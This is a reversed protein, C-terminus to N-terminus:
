PNRRKIAAFISVIIGLVMAIIFYRSILIGENLTISFSGGLPPQDSSVFIQLYYEGSEKLKFTKNLRSSSETWTGESDRGTYYYFTKQFADTAISDKDLIYAVAYVESNNPLSSEIRFRYLKNADISIPGITPSASESFMSQELALEEQFITSGSSFFSVMLMAFMGLAFLISTNSVSRWRSEYEKLKAIEENDGFAEILDKRRYRTEKFFEVEKVEDGEESLRWEAIYNTGMKKFSAFQITDDLKIEYNSEGEFFLVRANGFEQVVAPTQKKYFSMRLNEPLLTPTEPIIEESKWYGQRDEVIYFYTRQPSIMLWEDYVWVEDSYGSSGDEQWFEKYDMRWRTRAIVQYQTGELEVLQGLKIFSFPRHREPQQSLAQIVQYTDSSVDQATGCYPCCLYQARPNMLQLANGCGQCNFQKVSALEAQSTIRSSM